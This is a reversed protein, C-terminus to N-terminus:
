EKLRDLGLSTQHAVLGAAAPVKVVSEKAVVATGLEVALLLDRAHDVALAVVAQPGFTLKQTGM